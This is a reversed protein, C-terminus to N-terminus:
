NKAEFNILMEVVRQNAAPEGVTIRVGEPFPRVAIGIEECANKLAEPNATKLWYFNADSDGIKWGAGRLKEVIRNREAAIEDVRAKLEIAALDSLSAVAAVQALNNIGFPLATRRIFDAIEPQAIAFGVRLGALGHSKSFTRLLAVNEYKNFFEMGKVKSDDTVFDCYAEDIVVLVRSPVKQMFTELENKSIANGTPNNPSCVLIMKTKDTVAAAMADLDHSEDSKLPVPVGTVQSLQIAIPYAEFSRWPYIVEDGFGAMAEIVHGLVAVAGTGVAINEPKVNLSKAIATIMETNFPDPYRNVTAAAKAIEDVVSPLPSYTNENSSLKFVEIGERPQLKQGAKYAPLSLLDERVKPKSM